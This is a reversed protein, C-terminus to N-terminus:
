IKSWYKYLYHVAIASLFCFSGFWIMVFMVIPSDIGVTYATFAIAYCIAGAILYLRILLRAIKGLM